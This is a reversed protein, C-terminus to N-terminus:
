EWGISIAKEKHGGSDINPTVDVEKAVDSAGESCHTRVHSADFTNDTVLESKLAGVIGEEEVKKGIEASSLYALADNSKFSVQESHRSWLELAQHFQEHYDSMQARRRADSNTLDDNPGHLFLAIADRAEELTRQYSLIVGDDDCM